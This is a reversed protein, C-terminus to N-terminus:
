DWLEVSNITINIIISFGIDLYKLEFIINVNKIKIHEFKM